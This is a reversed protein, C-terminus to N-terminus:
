KDHGSSYEIMVLSTAGLVGGSDIRLPVKGEGSDFWLKYKAPDSALFFADHVEGAAKLTDQKLVTITVDKTPLRMVLDDGIVFKGDRRYRYIFGYLNEVSGQKELVKEITKAGVQKVITVKGHEQYNEVIKEKKGFINLDREVRIPLFTQPDIFIKEEDFFNFARATFTILYVPKGDLQGYGNFELSAQGAKAGFKRIAYTVKEGDVFPLDAARSEDRVFLFVMVVLIIIQYIKKM